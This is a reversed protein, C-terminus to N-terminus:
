YFSKKPVLSEQAPDGQEIVVDLISDLFALIKKGSRSNEQLYSAIEIGEDTIEYPNISVQDKYQEVTMGIDKLSMIFNFATPFDKSFDLDYLDGSKIQQKISAVKPALKLLTTSINKQDEVTSETM